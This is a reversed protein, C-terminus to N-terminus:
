PQSVPPLILWHGKTDYLFVKGDDRLALVSRATAAIQVVRRSSIDEPPEASPRLRAELEAVRLELAAIRDPETPTPEAPPMWTSTHQWPAVAGVHSWHVLVYHDDPYATLDALPARVM